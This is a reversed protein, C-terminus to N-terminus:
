AQAEVELRLPHGEVKAWKMVELVKTEAIDKPYVGCIGKGQTHVQMM